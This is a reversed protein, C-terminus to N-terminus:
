PIQCNDINGDKCPERNTTLTWWQPSCVNCLLKMWNLFECCKLASRLSEPHYITGGIKHKEGVSSPM